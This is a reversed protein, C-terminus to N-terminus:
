QAHFADLRGRLWRHAPDTDVRAHWAAALTFPPLPVPPKFLALGRERGALLAHPLTAVMDSTAVAEIALLYSQVSLVVHRRRGHAALARDVLGEFGGGDGSVLVHDRRCYNDLDDVIREGERMASVFGDRVITRTILAPMQEFQSPAGLALDIRGAELDTLRARDFQHLSVRVGPASGTRVANLLPLGAISAANDNAMIAFTRTARTPDFADGAVARDLEALMRRGAEALSRARDTAILGRAGSAQVLLPDGLITRLTALRASMRPQSIGLRKAARGVAEEEVLAVLSPLLPLLTNDMRIVSLM